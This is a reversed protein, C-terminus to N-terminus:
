SAKAGRAGGARALAERVGQNALADARENGPDGAHGKVWQWEIDHTSTQRELEQWLEANKVPKGAATVWGNKKWNHIWGTIGDRVYSSDLHMVVPCPRRIAKLAEIVATLEMQNNTTRIKGGCMEKVHEGWRMLVGWGGPGPNGKCAGDTWIHLKRDTMTM